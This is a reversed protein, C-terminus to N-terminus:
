RSRRVPHSVVPPDDSPGEDAPREGGNELREADPTQGADATSDSNGGPDVVFVPRHGYLRALEDGSSLPQAATAHGGASQSGLNLGNRLDELAGVYYKPHKEWGKAAAVEACLDYGFEQELRKAWPLRDSGIPRGTATEYERRYKQVFGTDDDPIAPDTTPHFEPAGRLKRDARSQEPDTEPDTESESPTEHLTEHTNRPVNAPVNRKERYKRVRSTVDDSAFQRGDWNHPRLTDDDEDILGADELDRITQMAEQKSIRLSFSVDVLPPLVGRPEQLNALCLLEVWRWRLKIPLRQIKPDHLVESYFRFWEIRAM